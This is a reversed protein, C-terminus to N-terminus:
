GSGCLGETREAGHAVAASSEGPPGHEDGASAAPDAPRRRGPRGAFPRGHGHEVAMTVVGLLGRRHDAGAAAGRRRIRAVDRVVVCTAPATPAASSSRPRIEPTTVAAPIKWPGSRRGACSTDTSSKMVTSRTLRTPVNATILCESGSRMRLRRRSRSSRTSRPSERGRTRRPSCRSCPRLRRAAGTQERHLVARVAHARVADARATDVCRHGAPVNAVGSAIARAFRM